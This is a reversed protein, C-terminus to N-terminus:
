SGQSTALKTGRVYTGTLAKERAVMLAFFLLSDRAQTPDEPLTVHKMMHEYTEWASPDLVVFDAEKGVDFNGTRHDLALARAGALTGTFLLEAPHVAVAQNDTPYPDLGVPQRESLHVKYCANLIQPVFWEDGGGLDSGIAVNVGSAITRRWPLTGMGLVLNSAPCHSISTGTEAMRALEVDQCHVGHALVSRPGLFSEGGVKSGPLFKGDYTDLYTNVGYVSRVSEIEGGPTADENIHSHFYVGKDRYEGYLEGLAGLTTPTVTLSMRPEIAVYQLATEYDAPNLPHWKDIEARVLDIAAEESTILPRAAEPGTTQVGHGTVLRMGRAKAESHLMDQAEPFASGFVLGNTTGASVMRDIWEVAAAQAFEPDSLRAEAPFICTALWDMLTGGSYSDYAWLQPFHMHTDIFGPLLFAGHHDVVTASAHEVPLDAWHGCWEIIGADSVVLGGDSFHALHAAAETVRPAGAIHFIQGRHVTAM